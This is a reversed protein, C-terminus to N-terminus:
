MLEELIELLANEQERKVRDANNKFAYYVFFTPEIRPAGLETKTGVDLYLAPLGDKDKNFGLKYFIFGRARDISHVDEFSRLTKGTRHHERMFGTLDNAIPKASAELSKALSDELDGGADIIKQLLEEFGYFDLTVGGHHSFNGKKRSRKKAM